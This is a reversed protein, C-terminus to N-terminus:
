RHCITGMGSRFVLYGDYIFRVENIETWAGGSWSYDREIRKRLLGDYVFDNRWVNTVWVSTLQNEDDYAFNRTGDSFLNGNLDYSFSNTAPLYVSVTNTSVRPVYDQAIATYTNNGNALTFNTAVFSGDAYIVANSTNVTVSTM